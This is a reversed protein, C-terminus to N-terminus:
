KLYRYKFRYGITFVTKEDITIWEMDGVEIKGEKSLLEIIEKKDQELKNLAIGVEKMSNHNFRELNGISKWDRM